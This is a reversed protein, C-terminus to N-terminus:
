VRLVKLFSYNYLFFWNLQREYLVKNYLSFVLSFLLYNAIFDNEKTFLWYDFASCDTNVPILGFTTIDIQKIFNLYYLNCTLNLFILLKINKERLFEIFYYKSSNSRLNSFLSDFLFSNEIFVTVGFLYKIFSTIEVKLVDFTIFLFLYGYKILNYFLNIFNRIQNFFFFDISIFNQKFLKKFGFNSYVWHVPTNTQTLFLYYFLKNKIFNICLPKIFKTLTIMNNTLLNSSYLNFFFTNFYFNFLVATFNFYSNILLWSCYTHLFLRQVSFLNLLWNM